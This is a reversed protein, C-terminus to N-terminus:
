QNENSEISEAPIQKKNPIVKETSILSKLKSNIVLIAICFPLIATAFLAIHLTNIDPLIVWFFGVSGLALFILIYIMTNQWSKIEKKLISKQLLPNNLDGLSQSSEKLIKLNNELEQIQQKLNSIAGNAEITPISESDINDIIKAQRSQEEQITAIINQITELAKIQSNQKFSERIIQSEAKIEDILEEAYAVDEMLKFVSEALEERTRQDLEDQM